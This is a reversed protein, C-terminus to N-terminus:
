GAGLLDSWRWSGKGLAIRAGEAGDELKLVALGTMRQNKCEAPAFAVELAIAQRVGALGKGSQNRSQLWDGDWVLMARGSANMEHSASIVARRVAADDRVADQVWRVMDCSGGGSGPGSGTGGTGGSGGVGNGGGGGPGAGVTMAGALQAAGLLPLPPGPPAPAAPLPEVDPPLRDVVLRPRAAAVAPPARRPAPKAPAPSEEAAAPADPTPSPAPAPVRAPPPPPPPAALEVVIAPEPTPLTPTKPQVATMMLVLAAHGVLVPAIALARRRTAAASM